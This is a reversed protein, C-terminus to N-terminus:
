FRAEEETKSLKIAAEAARKPEITLDIFGDGCVTMKNDCFTCEFRNLFYKKNTKVKEVFKMECGCADCNVIKNKM